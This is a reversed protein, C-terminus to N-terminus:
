DQEPKKENARLHYYAYVLVRLILDRALFIQALSQGTLEKIVSTLDGAAPAGAPFLIPKLPDRTLFEKFLIGLTAGGEKDKYKQYVGFAYLGDEQLIGMSKQVHNVPNKVKKATLDDKLKGAWDACRNDLYIPDTM